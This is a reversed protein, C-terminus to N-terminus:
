AEHEAVAPTQSTASWSALLSLTEASASGPEASYAMITLDTSGAIELADYALTVTGVVPHNFTKTGTLHKRVNQAAWQTRFTDSRTALEGILGSLERDFPNRGAEARLMAVTDSVARDWSGYFAPAAPNLFIFRAHNPPHGTPEFMGAYLARGLANSALVDLRGNQLIAPAATMSDLINQISARVRSQSARRTPQLPVTVRSLAVLHAAEADDLELARSIASLVSDSAGSVAGRELRNYYDVSVGALLAVEERRLGPVRRRGNNSLGAQEPTIKARRSRLFERLDNRTDV